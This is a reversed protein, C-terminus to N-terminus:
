GRDHATYSVSYAHLPRHTGAKGRRGRSPTSKALSRSTAAPSVTVLFTDIEDRDAVASTAVGREPEPNPRKGGVKGSWNGVDDGDFLAACGSGGGDVEVSIISRRSRVV